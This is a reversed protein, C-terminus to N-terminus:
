QFCFYRILTWLSGWSFETIAIDQLQPVLHDQSHIHAMHALYILIFVIFSSRFIYVLGIWPYFHICSRNLSILMVNAWILIFNWQSVLSFSLHCRSIRQLCPLIHNSDTVSLHQCQPLLIIRIGVMRQFFFFSTVHFVLSMENISITLIESHFKGQHLSIKTFTMNIGYRKIFAVFIVISGYLTWCRPQQRSM